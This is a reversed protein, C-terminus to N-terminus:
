PPTKTTSEMRQPQPTSRCTGSRHSRTPARTQRTPTQIRMPPSRRYTPLRAPFQRLGGPPGSPKETPTVHEYHIPHLRAAIWSSAQRRKIKRLQEDHEMWKVALHEFHEEIKDLTEETERRFEKLEDKLGDVKADLGDVKANLGKVGTNLGRMEASLEELRGMIAKLLAQMEDM